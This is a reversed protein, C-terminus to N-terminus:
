LGISGFGRGIEEGDASKFHKYIEEVYPVM